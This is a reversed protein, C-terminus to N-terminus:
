VAWLRLPKVGEGGDTMRFKSLLTVSAFDPRSSKYRLTETQSSVALHSKPPLPPTTSPTPPPQPLSAPPQSLCKNRRYPWLGARLPRVLCMSIPSAVGAQKIFRHVVFQHFSLSFTCLSSTPVEPHLPPNSLTQRFAASRAPIQRPLWRREGIPCPRRPCAIKRPSTAATTSFVLRLISKKKPPVPIHTNPSTPELSEIVARQERKNNRRLFPSPCFQYICEARHM